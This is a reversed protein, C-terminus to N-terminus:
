NPLHHFLLLVLSLLHNSFCWGIVLGGTIDAEVLYIKILNIWQSALMYEMNLTHSTHDSCLNFTWVKRYITWLRSAPLLQLLSLNPSPTILRYEFLVQVKLEFVVNLLVILSKNLTWCRVALKNETPFTASLILPEHAVLAPFVITDITSHLPM